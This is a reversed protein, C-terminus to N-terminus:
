LVSVVLWCWQTMRLLCNEVTKSTWFTVPGEEKHKRNHYFNVSCSTGRSCFSGRGSSNNLSETECLGLRKVAKM